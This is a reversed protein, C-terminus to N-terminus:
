QHEYLKRWWYMGQYFGFAAGALLLVASLVAHITYWDNWSFGLSWRDFDSILLNIAPIEIGAHVLFSLLVGLLTFCVIYFHKKM